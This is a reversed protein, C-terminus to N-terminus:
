ARGSYDPHSPHNLWSFLRANHAAVAEAALEPTDLMGLCVDSLKSTDDCDDPVLDNRGDVVAYISRGLKTGTRWPVKRLDTPESM